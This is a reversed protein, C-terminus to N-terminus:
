CIQFLLKEECCMSKRERKKRTEFDHRVRCHGHPSCCVGPKWGMMSIYRGLTQEFEDILNIPKTLVEHEAVREGLRWIKKMLTKEIEKVDPAWFTKNSSWSWCWGELLWNNLRKRLETWNLETFRLNANVRQLEHVCCCSGQWWGSLKGLEIDRSDTIGMWCGWWRQGKGARLKEALM